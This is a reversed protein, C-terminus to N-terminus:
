TGGAGVLWGIAPILNLAAAAIASRPTLKLLSGGFIGLATLWL